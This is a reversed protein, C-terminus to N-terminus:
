LPLKHAKLALSLSFHNVLDSTELGLIWIVTVQASLTASTVMSNDDTRSPLDLSQILSSNWVALLIKHSIRLYQAKHVALGFESATCGQTWGLCKQRFCEANVTEQCLFQLDWCRPNCELTHFPLSSLVSAETQGGWVSVGGRGWERNGKAGQLYGGWVEWVDRVKKDLECRETIQWRVSRGVHAKNGKATDAPNAGGPNEWGAKTKVLIPCSKGRRWTPQSSSSNSRWKNWIGSKLILERIPFGTGEQAPILETYFSYLFFIPFYGM